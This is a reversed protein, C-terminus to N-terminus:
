KIRSLLSLCYIFLSTITGLGIGYSLAWFCKMAAQGGQFSETESFSFSLNGALIYSGPVWLVALIFCAKIIGALIKYLTRDPKRFDEIGIYVALPFSILGAWTIFTGLPISNSSDLPMTLLPSGTILLLITIFSVILAILFWITRKNM